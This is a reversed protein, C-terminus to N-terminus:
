GDPLGEILIKIFDHQTTTHTSGRVLASRDINPRLVQFTVSGVQQPTAKAAEKIQLALNIKRLAKSWQQYGEPTDFVIDGTDFSFLAGQTWTCVAKGKEKRETMEININM